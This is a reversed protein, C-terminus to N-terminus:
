QLHARAAPAAEARGIIAALEARERLTLNLGRGQARGVLQVLRARDAPRVRPDRTTALTSAAGPDGVAARAAHVVRALQAHPYPYSRSSLESGHSLANRPIPPDTEPSCAM